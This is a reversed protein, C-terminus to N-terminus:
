KLFLMSTQDPPTHAFIFKLVVISLHFSRECFLAECRMEAKSKFSLAVIHTLNFIQSLFSLYFSVHLIKPIQFFQCNQHLAVKPGPIFTCSVSTLLILACIMYVALRVSLCVSLSAPVLFNGCEASLNAASNLRRLFAGRM